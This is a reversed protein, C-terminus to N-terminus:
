LYFLILTNFYLLIKISLDSDITKIAIAKKGDNNERTVLPTIPTSDTPVIIKTMRRRKTKALFKICYIIGVAAISINRQDADPEVGPAKEASSDCTNASPMM